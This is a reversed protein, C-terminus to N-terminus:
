RRRVPGRTISCGSLGVRDREGVADSERVATAVAISAAPSPTDGVGASGPTSGSCGLLFATLMIAMPRRSM